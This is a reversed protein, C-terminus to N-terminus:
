GGIETMKEKRAFMAFGKIKPAPTLLDSNVLFFM